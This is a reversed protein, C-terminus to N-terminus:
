NGAIACATDLWRELVAASRDAVRRVFRKHAVTQLFERTREEFEHLEGGLRRAEEEAQARNTFLTAVVKPEKTVVDNKVVHFKM